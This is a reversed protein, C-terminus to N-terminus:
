IIIDHVNNGNFLKLFRNRVSDASNIVSNTLPCTGTWPIACATHLYYLKITHYM